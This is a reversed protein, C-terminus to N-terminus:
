SIMESIPTFAQENDWLRSCFLVLSQINALSIVTDLQLRLFESRWCIHFISQVHLLTVWRYYRSWYLEMLFWCLGYVAKQFKSFNLYTGSLIYQCQQHLVGTHLTWVNALYHFPLLSIQLPSPKVKFGMSSKFVSQFFSYELGKTLSIM